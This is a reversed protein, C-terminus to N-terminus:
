DRNPSNPSMRITQGTRITGEMVTCCIFPQCNKSAAITNPLIVRYQMDRNLAASHFTVDQMRVKLTLRPRDPKIESKNSCGALVLLVCLVVAFRRATERRGITEVM